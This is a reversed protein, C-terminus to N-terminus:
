GPFGHHQHMGFGAIIEAISGLRDETTEIDRPKAPDGHGITRDVATSRGVFMAGHHQTPYVMGGWVPYILHPRTHTHAIYLCIVYATLNRIIHM